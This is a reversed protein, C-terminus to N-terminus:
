NAPVTYTVVLQPGAPNAVTGDEDSAQSAIASRTAETGDGELLFVMPSGAQWLVEDFLAKLDPTRTAENNDGEVWAAPQWTVSGVTKTRKSIDSTLVTFEAPDPDTQAYISISPVAAEEESSEEATFQVYAASIVAGAPIQDLSPVFRLGVLSSGKLSDESNYNLELDSSLLTVAGIPEDGGTREESDNCDVNEECLVLPITATVPEPDPDSILTFSATITKAEDMTLVCNSASPDGECAAGSWGSFSSGEDPTAQLSIETGETYTAKCATAAADCDILEDASVVSGSGDGGPFVELEYTPKPTTDGPNCAALLLAFISVLTYLVIRNKLM